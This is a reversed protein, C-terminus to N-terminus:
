GNTSGKTPLSALAARVRAIEDRGAQTPRWTWNGRTGERGKSFAACFGREKLFRMDEIRTGYRAGGRALLELAQIQKRNYGTAIEARSKQQGPIHEPHKAHIHPNLGRVMKGCHPCAVGPKREAVRRDLERDEAM